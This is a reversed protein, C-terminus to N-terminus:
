GTAKLLQFSLAFRIGGMIVRSRGLRGIHLLVLLPTPSLITCVATLCSSANMSTLPMTKWCSSARLREHVDHKGVRDDGGCEVFEVIVM